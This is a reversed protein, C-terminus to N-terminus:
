WNVVGGVVRGGEAGDFEAFIFCSFTLLFLYLRAYNHALSINCHFINPLVLKWPLQVM